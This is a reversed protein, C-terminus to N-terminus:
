ILDEYTEKYKKIMIKKDFFKEVRLRANFGYKKQKNDDFIVLNIKKIMDNINKPKVYIVSDRCFEKIHPLDSTIVTRGCAMAEIVVLPTAIAGGIHRYPFFLIDNNNYEKIIDDVVGYIEISPDISNIYSRFKSTINTVYIRKTVRKSDLKSFVNVVEILGKSTSLHGFYAISKKKSKKLNLNKFKDLDIGHNIVKVNKLNLMNKLFISPVIILDFKRFFFRKIFVPTLLSISRFFIKKFRILFPYYDDRTDSIYKYFDFQDKLDEFFNIGLNSHLSYISRVNSKKFKIAEVFGSSHINILDPKVKSKNISINYFKSLDLNLKKVIKVLGEFSHDSFDGKFLINKKM